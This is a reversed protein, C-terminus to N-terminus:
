KTCHGGPEGMNGRLAPDGDKVCLKTSEALFAGLRQTLKLSWVARTGGPSLRSGRNYLGNVEFAQRM